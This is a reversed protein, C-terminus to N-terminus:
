KGALGKAIKSRLESPFTLGRGYQDISPVYERVESFQGHETTITSVHIELDEAKTVKTHVVREISM